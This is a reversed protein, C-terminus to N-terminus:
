ERLYPCSSKCFRSGRLSFLVAYSFIFGILLQRMCYHPLEKYTETFEGTMFLRARLRPVAFKPATIRSQTPASNKANCLRTKKCFRKRPVGCM